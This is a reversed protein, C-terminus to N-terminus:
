NYTNDKHKNMCLKCNDCQEFPLHNHYEINNRVKERIVTDCHVKCTKSNEKALFTCRKGCRLKAQCTKKPNILCFLVEEFFIKISEIDEDQIIHVM